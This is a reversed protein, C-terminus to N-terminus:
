TSHTERASYRILQPEHCPYPHWRVKFGTILPGPFKVGAATAGALVASFIQTILLPSSNQMLTHVYSRTYGDPQINANAIYLNTSPGIGAYAGVAASLAVLAQTSFM